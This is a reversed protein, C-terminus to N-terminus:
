CRILGTIVVPPRTLAGAMWASTSLRVMTSDTRTATWRDVVGGRSAGGAGVGACAATRAADRRSGAATAIHMAAGGARVARSVVLASGAIGLLAVTLLTCAVLLEVLVAGAPTNRNARLWAPAVASRSHM